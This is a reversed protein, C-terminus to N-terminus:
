PAPPTSAVGIDIVFEDMEPNAAGYVDRARAYAKALDADSIGYAIALRILTSLNVDSFLARVHSSEGSGSGLLTPLDARTVRVSSANEIASLATSAPDFIKSM